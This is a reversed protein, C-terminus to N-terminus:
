IKVVQLFDLEVPTERGFISVLVEMKGKEEDIKSISGMMEAFPGEAVKVTEGLTFNSKFKPAEQKSHDMIANVESQPLPSPENSMGVFGTVGATSRVTLWSEDTVLMKILMYGPFTKEKITSKKGRSIKIKEETPVLIEFIKDTLGMSDVRQKLTAATAAEHGSYAHVVYWHAERPADKNIIIHNPDSMKKIKKVKKAKTKRITTKTM